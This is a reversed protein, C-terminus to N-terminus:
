DHRLSLIGALADLSLKDPSPHQSHLSLLENDFSTDDKSFRSFSSVQNLSQLYAHFYILRKATYLKENYNMEQCKLLSFAKTQLEANDKEFLINRALRDDFTTNNMHNNHYMRPNSFHCQDPLSSFTLHPPLLPITLQPLSPVTLKCSTADFGQGMVNKTEISTSPNKMSKVPKLNGKMEIAGKSSTSSYRRMYLCLSPKDRLFLKHFYAGLCDGKLLRKFGWRYLKGRFSSFKTERYIKRLVNEVFLSESKIVFADGKPTWAIYDSIEEHSLLEMLKQPFSKVFGNDDRNSLKMKLVINDCPAKKQILDDM